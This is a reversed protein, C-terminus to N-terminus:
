EVFIYQCIIYCDYCHAHSASIDLPLTGARRSSVTKTPSVSLLYILDYELTVPARLSYSPTIPYFTNPTSTSKTPPLLFLVKKKKKLSIANSNFNIFLQLFRHKRFPLKLAFYLNAPGMRAKLSHFYKPCPGPIQM